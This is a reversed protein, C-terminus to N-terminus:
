VTADDGRRAGISLIALILVELLTWGIIAVIAAIDLFMRGYQASEFAFMSRFPEVFPATIGVILEVIDNNLNASAGDHPRLRDHLERRKTFPLQM